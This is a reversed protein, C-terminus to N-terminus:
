QENPNPIEPTEILKEMHWCIDPSALQAGYNPQTRFVLGFLEMVEVKASLIECQHRLGRIEHIADQMAQKQKQQQTM